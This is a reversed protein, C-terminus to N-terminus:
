KKPSYFTLIDSDPKIQINDAVSLSCSDTVIAIHYQKGPFVNILCHMSFDFTVLYKYRLYVETLIREALYKGSVLWAEGNRCSSSQSSNRFIDCFWLIRLNEVRHYALIRHLNELCKLSGNLFVGTMITPSWALDLEDKEDCTLFFFLMSSRCGLLLTNFLWIGEWSYYPKMLTRNVNRDLTGAIITKRQYFFRFHTVCRQIM